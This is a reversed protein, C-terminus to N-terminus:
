YSEISVIKVRERVLQGDEYLRERIKRCHNYSDYGVPEAYYYVRSDETHYEVPRGVYAAERAGQVSIDAITTGAIAGLTAGIVGGRWPNGHDLIAGAIGGMTGGAIGGQYQYPACATTFLGFVAIFAISKGISKLM